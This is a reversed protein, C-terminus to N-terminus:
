AVSPHEDDSFPLASVTAYSGTEGIQIQQGLEVERRILALAIPGFTPSVTSSGIRGIVRENAVLEQGVQAPSELRLGALYRNPKGKYFLRAVTEQGVYCGKTFSVARKNLDAEQPITADTLEAGYRPIGREIRQCELAAEHVPIAGRKVLNEILRETEEAECIFDVGLDTAVAVVAIGEVSALASEFEDIGLDPIAAIERARPGILSVLGQQLTRKELRADFGVNTRRITDFLNQLAIRETDLWLEDALNLVRLDGLMKGKATLLAAYCGTGPSLAEIDNTVQGNLFHKADSGTLALKGRESRDFVGCGSILENYEGTFDSVLDM